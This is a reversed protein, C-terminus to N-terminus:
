VEVGNERLVRITVQKVEEDCHAMADAWTPWRDHESYFAYQYHLSQQDHPVSPDHDRACQSCLEPSSPMLTWTADKRPDGAQKITPPFVTVKPEDSM